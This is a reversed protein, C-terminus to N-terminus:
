SKLVERKCFNFCRQNLEWYTCIIWNKAFTDYIIWYFWQCCFLLYTERYINSYATHRHGIYLKANKEKKFKLKRNNNDINRKFIHLLNWKQCFVETETKFFSFFTFNTNHKQNINWVFIVAKFANFFALKANKEYEYQM